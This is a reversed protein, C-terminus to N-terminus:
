KKIEWVNINSIRYGNVKDKLQLILCHTQISHWARNIKLGLDRTSIPRESKRLIGLIDNDIKEARRKVKTVM